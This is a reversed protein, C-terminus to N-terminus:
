PFTEAYVEQMWKWFAEDGERILLNLGFNRGHGIEGNFCHVGGGIYECADESRSEDSKGLSIRSHYGMGVAMPPSVARQSFQGEETLDLLWGTYILLGVAGSPGILIMKLEMCHQGYNNRSERRRDWAPVFEVKRVFGVEKRITAASRAQGHEELFDAYALRAVPDTVAAHLLSLEDSNVM